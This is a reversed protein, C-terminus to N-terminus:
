KIIEGTNLDHSDLWESWRVRLDENQEAEKRIAEAAAIKRCPMQDAFNEYCYFMDPLLSDPIESLMAIVLDRHQIVWYEVENYDVKGEQVAIPNQDYLQELMVSRIELALSM